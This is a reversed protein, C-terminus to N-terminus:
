GLEKFIFLRINEKLINVRAKVFGDDVLEIYIGATVFSIDLYDIKISKFIPNTKIESFLVKFYTRRLAKNQQIPSATFLYKKM